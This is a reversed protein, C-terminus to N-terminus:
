FYKMLADLEQVMELFIPKNTSQYLNQAYVKAKYVLEFLAPQLLEEINVSAVKGAKKLIYWQSSDRTIFSNVNQGVGTTNIVDGLGIAIPTFANVISGSGLKPLVHKNFLPRIKPMIDVNASPSNNAFMQVPIHFPLEDPSISTLENIAKVLQVRPIPTRQLQHIIMRKAVIYPKEKMTTTIFAIVNDDLEPFWQKLVAKVIDSEAWTDILAKAVPKKGGLATFGSAELNMDFSIFLGKNNWRQITSVIHQAIAELKAIDTTKQPQQYKLQIMSTMKQKLGRLTKKDWKVYKSDQGKFELEISYQMNKIKVTTKKKMGGEAYKVFGRLAHILYNWLNARSM